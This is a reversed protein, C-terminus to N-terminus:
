YMLTLTGGTIRGRDKNRMVVESKHRKKEPSLSPQYGAVYENRIQDGIWKLVTPLLNGGPMVEIKKGATAAGLNTFNGVSRLMTSSSIDSSSTQPSSRSSSSRSSSSATDQAGLPALLLVPYLSINTQQAIGVTRQYREQEATESSSGQDSKGDSLIALMRVAVGPTSSADIMVRSIHDLLFTSLPHVFLPSELAKGLEEESRTQARIRTLGSPFGYIAISLNPFENLLGEQFVKPNLTGSSLATRNCDLLLSLQIPITRPHVSGGQFFAVKQPAGDVRIEIDGPTLDTVPKGKQPTVQFRILALDTDADPTAAPPAQGLATLATLFLVMRKM